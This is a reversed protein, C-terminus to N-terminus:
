IIVQGEYVMGLRFMAPSDEFSLTVMNTTIPTSRSGNLIVGVPYVGLNRCLFFSIQRQSLGFFAVSFFTHYIYKHLLATVFLSREGTGEEEVECQAM